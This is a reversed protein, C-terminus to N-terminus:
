GGCDEDDGKGEPLLGDRHGTVGAGLDADLFSSRGGQPGSLAQKQRGDAQCADM